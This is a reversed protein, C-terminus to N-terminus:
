DNDVTFKPPCPPVRFLELTEANRAHARRREEPFQRYYALEDIARDSDQLTKRIVRYLNQLSQCQSTNVLNIQQIRERRNRDTERDNMWTFFFALVVAAALIAFGIVGGHRHAWWRVQRVM